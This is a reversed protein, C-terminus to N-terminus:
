KFRACSSNDTMSDCSRKRPRRSRHIQDRNLIDLLPPKPQHVDEEFFNTLNGSLAVAGMFIVSTRILSDFHDILLHLKLRPDTITSVKRRTIAVPFPLKSETTEVNRFSKSLLM